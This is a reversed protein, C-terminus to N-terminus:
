TGAGTGAGSNDAPTSSTSSTSSGSSSTDPTFTFAITTTFSDSTSWATDPEQVVQGALRFLAFSGPKYTVKGTTADVDAAELTALNKGSKSDTTVVVASGSSYSVTAKSWDACEKNIADKMSDKLTLKGDVPTISDGLATNSAAKMEFWVFAQKSKSTDKPAASLLEFAAKTGLKASVTAGVTLKTDGDNSIYMPLSAIQQGEIKVTSNDSQEVSIPLGYPNIYVTGTSPVTVAITIEKYSGNVNTTNSAAFAPVALSAALAGALALSTIRKTLKSM